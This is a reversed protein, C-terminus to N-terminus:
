SSVVYITVPKIGELTNTSYVFCVKSKSDLRQGLIKAMVDGMGGQTATSSEEGGGMVDEQDEVMGEDEGDSDNPVTDFNADGGGTSAAESYAKPRRESTQEVVAGEAPLESATGDQRPRKRGSPVRTNKSEPEDDSPNSDDHDWTVDQKSRAKHLTKKRNSKKHKRDADREAVVKTSRSLTRPRAM